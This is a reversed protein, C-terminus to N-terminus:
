PSKIIEPQAKAPKRATRCASSSPAPRVNREWADGGPGPSAPMQMDDAGNAAHVALPEMPWLAPARVRSQRQGHRTM